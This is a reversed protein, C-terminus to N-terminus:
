MELIFIHEKYLEKIKKIIYDFKAPSLARIAHVLRNYYPSMNKKNKKGQQVFRKAQKYYYALDTQTMVNFEIINDWDGIFYSSIGFKSLFTSWM